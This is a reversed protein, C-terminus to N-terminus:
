SRLPAPGPDVRITRTGPVTKAATTRTSPDRSAAAFSSLEFGHRGFLQPATAPRLSSGEIV